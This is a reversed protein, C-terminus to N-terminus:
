YAPLAAPRQDGRQQREDAVARRVAMADDANDARFRTTRSSTRVTLTGDGAVSASDVTVESEYPWSTLLLDRPGADAPHVFPRPAAGVFLVRRSTAVLLGYSRRWVDAPRRQEVSAQAVIREGPDLLTALEREAMELAVRRTGVPSALLLTATVGVAIALGSARTLALALRRPRHQRDAIPVPAGPPWAGPRPRPPLTEEDLREDPPASPPRRPPSPM